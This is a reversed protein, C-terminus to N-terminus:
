PSPQLRQACVPYLPRLPTKSTRLMDSPNLSLMDAASTSAPVATVDYGRSRLLRLINYKLGYDVVLIHGASAPRDSTVDWRYLASTTVGKVYDVGGYQPLRKLRALAEEAPELGELTRLAKSTNPNTGSLSTSVTPENRSSTQPMLAAGIPPPAKKSGRVVVAWM